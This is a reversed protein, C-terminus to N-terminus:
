GGSFLPFIEFINGKGLCCPTSLVECWCLSLAAVDSDAMKIIYVRGMDEGQLLPVPFAQGAPHLLPVRHVWATGDAADHGAAWRRHWSPTGRPAAPQWILSAELSERTGHSQPQIAFLCLAKRVQTQLPPACLPGQLVHIIGNSAPIDWDSIFRDNIYRM